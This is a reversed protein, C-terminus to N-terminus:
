TSLFSFFAVAFFIIGITGVAWSANKVTRSLEEVKLASKHYKELFPLSNIPSELNEAIQKIKEIRSEPQPEARM